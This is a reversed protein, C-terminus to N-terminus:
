VGHRQPKATRETRETGTAETDETGTEDTEPTQAERGRGEDAPRGSRGYGRPGAYAARTEMSRASSDPPSAIRFSTRRGCVRCQSTCGGSTRCAAEWCSSM